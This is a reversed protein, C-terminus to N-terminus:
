IIAMDSKPSVKIVRLKSTLIVNDFIQNQKIITEVNSSSLHDQLNRYPFFPIGIIKLYSKSQLLYSADVQSSNINESIKVYKEIILLDSPISVKNTVVTVGHLDSCIFNVMVESKTNRLNRNLNTVHIASNKMFKEINDNGMSIIVQKRSPGKTMIQIHPKSKPSRKIISNIQNIEKAGISPFTEKIKIIDSTNANQKSAQAYTKTKFLSSNDTKSSKFYKSIINIEKPTKAPIPLPLRKISALTPSNKEKNNRQPTLQIRPTFKTAIKKRLSTSNNDASLLDWNADYVSSIFSWIAEGMGNFDDFENVKFSDIKKNTIYKTMFKLSEKISKANSGIHQILSHLSIPHFSGGWIESDMPVNPNYPLQINIFTSKVNQTTSHKDLVHQPSSTNTLNGKLPLIDAQKEATMSLHIEKEQSSKYSLKLSTDKISGVNDVDMDNNQAMRKHYPEASITLSM